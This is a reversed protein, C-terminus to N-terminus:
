PIIYMSTGAYHLNADGFSRISVSFMSSLAFMLVLFLCFTCSESFFLNSPVCTAGSPIPIQLLVLQAHASM